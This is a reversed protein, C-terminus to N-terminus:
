SNKEGLSNSWNNIKNYLWAYATVAYLGIAILAGIKIVAMYVGSLVACIAFFFELIFM